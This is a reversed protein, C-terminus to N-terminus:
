TIASVSTLMLRQFQYSKSDTHYYYDCHLVITIVSHYAQGFLGISFPTIIPTVVGFCRFWNVYFKPPPNKVNAIHGHM